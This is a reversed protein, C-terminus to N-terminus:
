STIWPSIRVKSFNASFINFLTEASSPLVVELSVAPHLFDRAAEAQSLRQASAPPRILRRPPPSRSSTPECISRALEKKSMSM